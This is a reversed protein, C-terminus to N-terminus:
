VDQEPVLPQTTQATNLDSFRQRLDAAARTIEDQYFPASEVDLGQLFLLGFVDQAATIAAIMANNVPQACDPLVARQAEHYQRISILQRYSVSATDINNLSGGGSNLLVNVRLLSDTNEDTAEIYNPNVACTEAQAHAAGPLLMVTIILLLFRLRM